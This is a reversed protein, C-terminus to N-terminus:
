VTTQTNPKLYKLFAKDNVSCTNKKFSMQPLATSCFVLDIFDTVFIVWILKARQFVQLATLFFFLILAKM